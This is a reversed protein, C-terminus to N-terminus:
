RTAIAQNSGSGAQAATAKELEPELTTWVTEMLLPQAQENPHLGDEQMLSPDLAVGELFFPILPIAFEKALAPYAAAFRETYDEGYNPPMLMGALVARAGSAQVKRIMQALNDQMIEIPLGRLGDNAGLEIIVIEPRHLDLARPLRSLGNGTTDGSISANVLRYGYGKADLKTQLLTVWTDEVDLGRGASLSDGVVLIRARSDAYAAPVFANVVIMLLLLLQLSKKPM